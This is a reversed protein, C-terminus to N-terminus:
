RRRLLDTVLSGMDRKNSANRSKAAGAAVEANVVSEHEPPQEDRDVPSAVKMRVLRVAKCIDEDDVEAVPSKSSGSSM